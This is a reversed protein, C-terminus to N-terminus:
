ARKEVAGAARPSGGPGLNSFDRTARQKRGATFVSLPTTALGTGPSRTVNYPTKPRHRYLEKEPTVRRGTTGTVLSGCGQAINVYM